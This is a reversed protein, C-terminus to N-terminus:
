DLKRAFFSKIFLNIPCIIIRNIAHKFSGIALTSICSGHAEEILSKCYTTYLIDAQKTIGGRFITSM